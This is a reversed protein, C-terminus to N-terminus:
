RERGIKKHYAFTTRSCVWKLLFAKEWSALRWLPRGKRRFGNNLFDVKKTIYDTVQLKSTKEWTPARLWYNTSLLKMLLFNNTRSFAMLLFEQDQDLLDQQLRRNQKLLKRRPRVHVSYFRSPFSLHAVRYYRRGGASFARLSSASNTSYKM